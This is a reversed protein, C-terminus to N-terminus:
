WYCTRISFYTSAIDPHGVIPHNHHEKLIKKKIQDSIVVLKGEKRWLQDQKNWVHTTKLKELQTQKKEQLEKIIAELTASRIKEEFL